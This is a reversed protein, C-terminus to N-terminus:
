EIHSSLCLLWQDTNFLYSSFDWTFEGLKVVYQESEEWDESQQKKMVCFYSWTFSLLCHMVFYIMEEM